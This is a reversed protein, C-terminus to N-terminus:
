KILSDYLQYSLGFAKPHAVLQQRWWSTHDKSKPSTSIKGQKINFGYKEIKQLAKWWNM